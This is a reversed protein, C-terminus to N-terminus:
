VRLLQAHDASGAHAHVVDIEVSSGTLANCYHIRRSCVGYGNRLLRHAHHQGHSAMKAAGIRQHMGALPLLFRQLSRFQAALRQADGAEAADTHFHRPPRASEPHLNNPM